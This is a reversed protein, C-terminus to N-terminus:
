ACAWGFAVVEKHEPCLTVHGCGADGFQFPLNGGSDVQFVHAM